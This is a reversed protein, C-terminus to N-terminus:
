LGPRQDQQLFTVIAALETALYASTNTVIICERGLTVNAPLALFSIM